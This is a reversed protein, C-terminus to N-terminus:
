EESNVIRSISTYHLGFHEGIAKMTYGGSSFASRIAQNRDTCSQEYEDLSGPKARTQLQPIDSVVQKSKGLKGLMSDVFQDSGLYVQKKVDKWISPLGIGERVFDQFLRIATSRNRSFQGLIWNAALWRPKTTSGCFAPYSSWEWDNIDNVMRARVPNLVVYRSLELLYADRQVMIATYRGQYVHGVRNHRRNFYQTYVGNLQRMGRSLNGEVTELM